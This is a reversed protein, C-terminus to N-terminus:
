RMMNFGRVHALQEELLIRLHSQLTLVEALTSHASDIMVVVREECLVGFPVRSSSYLWQLRPTLVESLHTAVAALYDHFGQVDIHLYVTSGDAWTFM